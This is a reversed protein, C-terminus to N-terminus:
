VGLVKKFLEALLDNIPYVLLLLPLMPALAAVGLTAALAVSAPVLRMTRVVALSNNLDALSQLDATGLLNEGQPTASGAFRWKSEFDGVYRSGMQMYDPWGQIKCLWLKTSFVFLPGIFLVAVVVLLLALMPYIGPLSMAGSSIAEASSASVVASLAMAVPWFEKHVIELYGLGAVGDPHTAVLKLNFRSLRWLFHCWLFLRWIWRFWLFRLLPFCVFWYWLGPAVMQGIEARLNASSGSLGLSTGSISLLLAIVICTAEPLWADRWRHLRAIEAQLAPLDTRAVIESSAILSVFRRMLPDVLSECLFLLPIVVLLRVHGGILELSFVRNVVGDILALVILVIWFLAGLALGLPLTNAGRVLGLRRGLRHLPGGNLSFEPM